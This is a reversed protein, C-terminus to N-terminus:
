PGLCTLPLVTVGDPRDYGYGSATIVLLKSPEGVRALDIRDRLRLLSRAAHEVGDKGGLKVEAALWRGDGSEVVADVELDHSGRYHWVDAHSAQGYVRLDRVVLSEFMLGLSEM